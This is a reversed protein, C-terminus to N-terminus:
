PVLCAPPIVIQRVCLKNWKRGAVPPSPPIRSESRPGSPAPCLPGWTGAGGLAGSAEAWTASLVSCLPAPGGGPAPPLAAGSPRDRRGPPSKRQPQVGWAQFGAPGEVCSGSSWSLM